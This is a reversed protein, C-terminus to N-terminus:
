QAPQEGPNVVTVSTELTNNLEPVFKGTDEAVPESAPPTEVKADGRFYLAWVLAAIIVIVIFIIIQKQKNM